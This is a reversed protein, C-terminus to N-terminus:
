FGPKQFFGAERQGVREWAKDCKQRQSITKSSGAWWKGLALFTKQL